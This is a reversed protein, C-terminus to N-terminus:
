SNRDATSLQPPLPQPNLWDGAGLSGLDQMLCDVARVTMSVRPPLPQPNLSAGYDRGGAQAGFSDVALSDMRFRPPLPQPNLSASYGRGGAQAGFSDVALIDMRFKPPLPQPNLSEKPSLQALATSGGARMSSAGSLKAALSAGFVIGGLDALSTPLTHSGSVTGYPLVMLSGFGGSWVSNDAMKYFWQNDATVHIRADGGVKGPRNPDYVDIYYDNPGAGAELGTAVLAHGDGLSEQLSIIPPDYAGVLRSIVDHIDASHHSSAKWGVYYSVVEASFQYLHDKEIQNILNGNPMLNSTTALAGPALGNDGNIWEPHHYFDLSALAMGFCMGKGNVAAVAFATFAAAEPTPLPTVIDDEWPIPNPVKVHTQDEGFADSVLPFSVNFDDNKFNLTNAAGFGVRAVTFGLVRDIEGGQFYSIGIVSGPADMEDSTPYGLAGLEYGTSAWKDYIDGHVEYTGSSSAFIAGNDFNAFRGTGRFTVFTDTSPSGLYRPRGLSNWKDWVYGDLEHAGHWPSWFITGHQFDNYRTGDANVVTDRTPCGLVGMDWNYDAWKDWMVAQISYTGAGPSSFIYGSDFQAWLGSGDRTAVTDTLPFGLYSVEAGMLHYKDNVAGRLVDAGNADTCFISGGEFDVYTGLGNATTQVGTLPAGLDSDIGGLGAWKQWIPGHIEQAVYVGNVNLSTFVLGTQFNQDFVGWDNPSQAVDSIAVGLTDVHRSWLDLILGPSVTHAGYASTYCIAGNELLSYQGTGDPTSLVSTEPLGMPNSFGGQSLWLDRIPGHIEVANGENIHIGTGGEFECFQARGDDTDTEDMTPFGLIGTTAPLTHDTRLDYFDQDRWLDNLTRLVHVDTEPSWATAGHQFKTYQGDNLATTDQVPGGLGSTLGGLSAWKDYTVGNAEAVQPQGWLYGSYYVIGTQCQLYQPIAVKVVVGNQVTYATTTGRSVIPGLSAANANYKASLAQSVQSATQRPDTPTANPHQPDLRPLSAAAPAAAIATTGTLAQASTLNLSTTLNTAMMLRTELDEVGPRAAPSSKRASRGRRGSGLRANRFLAPVSFPGFM